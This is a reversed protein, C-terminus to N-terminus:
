NDPQYFEDVAEKIAYINEEPTQCLIDSGCTFLIHKHDEKTMKLIDICQNKIENKHKLYLTPGDIGHFILRQNKVLKYAESYSDTWDLAFGIVNEPFDLYTDLFPLFPLGGHHMVLGGNVASFASKLIPNVIETTQKRTVFNSNAFVTPMIICSAGDTILANCFDVFFPVIYEMTRDFAVKDFLFIDLWKEMGFVMIPMDVPNLAIAAVPVKKDFSASLIKICKRLYVLDPNSHIDPYNFKILEEVSQIM